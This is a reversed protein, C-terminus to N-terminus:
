NQGYWIFHLQRSHVYFTEYNFLELKATVNGGIHTCLIAILKDTHRDTLRNARTDWFSHTWIKKWM